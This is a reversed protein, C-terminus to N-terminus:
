AGPAPAGSGHPGAPARGIPEQLEGALLRGCAAAADAVADAVSRSSGAALAAATNGELALRTGALWRDRRAAEIPVIRRGLTERLATAAEALRVAPELQGTGALLEGVADLARALAMRDNTAGAFRLLESLHRAAAAWDARDLALYAALCRGLVVGLQHGHEHMARVAAEMLTHATGADGDLATLWARAVPLLTRTPPTDRIALHAELEALHYRPGERDGQDLCTFVLGLLAHSELAPQGWQRAISRARVYQRRAAPLDGQRRRNSGLTQELHAIAWGDAASQALRLGEQLLGEAAATDGECYAFEGALQFGMARVGPHDAGGDLALLERLWARGEAYRGRLYWLPEVAIALRLGASPDNREIAWRLAARLNDQDRELRAVHALDLSEAAAQEALALCWALHRDQTAHTEGRAELMEQAFERVTELLGFRREDDAGITRHVLSNDVLVQLRELVAEAPLAADACVAEAAALAWGGAFVAVRRFLAQEGPGLLDHSWALTQRLTQQRAPLDPAGGTLLPLRHELRRLLAEPGLLGARAAALEIALPLGDLRRCIAAVAPANGTDLAFDPAVARALEVFLRVAPSTAIAQPSCATDEPAALPPVAFRQEGRLRLAARSTLLLALRPCAALLEALLPAAGLLHEFNDLVLLLHREQLHALLLERASRGGSERLELAHAVTAPVLRPDHVPALDVFVVGDPYADVLAAAVALALRTKGVGGPGVLTLLRLELHAPDLLATAATIEEDRGILPTPPVPLRVRGVARAQDLAVPRTTEASTSPALAQGRLPVAAHLAAREDPGLELAEALAAMTNPYPRRRRDEELAAITAVGVGAREALVEQTM